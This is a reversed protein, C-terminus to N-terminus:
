TKNKSISDNIAQNIVEDRQSGKRSSGYIYSIIGTLTAILATKIESVSNMQETPFKSSSIYFFYIFIMTVVFVAFFNPFSVSQLLNKKDM